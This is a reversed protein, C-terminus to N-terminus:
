YICPCKPPRIQGVLRQPATVNIKGLDQCEAYRPVHLHDPYICRIDLILAMSFRRLRRPISRTAMMQDPGGEAEYYHAQLFHKKRKLMGLESTQDNRNKLVIFSRYLSLIYCVISCKEDLPFFGRWKHLTICAPFWLQSALIILLYVSIWPQRIFSDFWIQLEGANHKVAAIYKQDHKLDVNVTITEFFVPDLLVM